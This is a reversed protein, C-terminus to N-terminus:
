EGRWAARLRAVLGRAKREADAQRLAAAAQQGAQADHQAVALERAHIDVMLTQGAKLEDIATRLAEAMQREEAIAAEAQAAQQLAADLRERLGAVEAAELAIARATDLEIRLEAVKAEADDARRTAEDARREAEILRSLARDLLPFVSALDGRGSDPSTGRADPPGTRREQEGKLDDAPVVVVTPQGRKNPIIRFWGRRRVLVRAADGSIRLRDAIQAYTLRLQGVDPSSHEPSDAAM